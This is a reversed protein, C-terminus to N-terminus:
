RNKRRQVTNFAALCRELHIAGMRRRETRGDDRGCYACPGNSWRAQRATYAAEAQFIRQQELADLEARKVDFAAMITLYEQAIAEQADEREQPTMADIQEPTYRGM